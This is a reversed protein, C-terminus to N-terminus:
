LWQLFKRLQEKIYPVAELPTKHDPVDMRKTGERWATIHADITDEAHKVDDIVSPLYAALAHLTKQFDSLIWHKHAELTEDSMETVSPVVTEPAPGSNTPETLNFVAALNPAVGDRHTLPGGLHFRSRLTAIVSTHDFPYPPGQHPVANPIRLVTGPKIYPSILVAPVRVGYRNFTFGEHSVEGDPSVARPPAVHDYCGGHEDFLIILLSKEWYPSNRLKQYVDAILQDGFSIDHPPHMDSPFATDPFYRPEIFTYSSLTGATLDQAFTEYLHFRERYHWLNTLALCQPMDHFYVKWGDPQDNDNFRNFITPMEHPRLLQNNAYRGASGTHLFFRNPWTQCPASAFWQDCVAFARALQSLVPVQEPMFYHMPANAARVANAKLGLSVYNDVFGDMTPIQLGPVGGVGFLQVNMDDWQEGPDPTPITMTEPDMGPSNWAPVTAGTDHIRLPNCADNPLGDFASTVPHLRGLLSDFSRNELMLVIIHDIREELVGM